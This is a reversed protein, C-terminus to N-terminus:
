MYLRNSQTNYTFEVSCRYGCKCCNCQTVSLITSNTKLIDQHRQTINLDLMGVTACHALFCATRSIHIQFYDRTFFRCHESQGHKSSLSAPSTCVYSMLIYVASRQGRVGQGGVGWDLTVNVSTTVLQVGKM